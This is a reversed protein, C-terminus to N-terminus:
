PLGDSRIRDFAILDLMMCIIVFNASRLLIGKMDGQNLLTSLILIGYYVAVLAVIPNIRRKRVIEALYCIGICLGALIQLVDYSHKCTRQEKPPLAMYDGYVKTLYKEAEQPASFSEGEFSIKRGDGLWSIPFSERYIYEGFCNICWESQEFPYRSLFDNFKRIEKTMSLLRSFHIVKNAKLVACQWWTRKSYDTGHYNLRSLKLTLMHFTIWCKHATLSLRGKPLGDLPFVDIWVDYAKNDSFIERVLQYRKDVVKAQRFPYNCDKTYHCLALYPPLKESAVRLFREYDPRPIMIDIDDDWPIFGQHRVAGLLTGSSLYYRIQEEDCIKSVVQLIDAEIKQLKRLSSEM